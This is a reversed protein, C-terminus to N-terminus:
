GHANGDTSADFIAVKVPRENDFGVESDDEKNPHYV